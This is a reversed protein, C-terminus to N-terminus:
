CRHHASSSGTVDATTTRPVPGPSTLLPPARFQVRHGRCRHHVSSPGTVDAATTRPVPGPSTPLPPARFQVRHRRCRHHVSSSGTVDAATTCPVPGPSTPLPPARFQARHRRCRHHVSSSGTVDAATTRPVPGPESLLARPLRHTTQNRRTFLSRSKQRNNVKGTSQFRTVIGRAASRTVDPAVREGGATPIMLRRCFMRIM